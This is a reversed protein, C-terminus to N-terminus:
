PQHSPAPDLQLESSSLVRIGIAPYQAKLRRFDEDSQSAVVDELILASLGRNRAGRVTVDVCGAGDLGALYLERIERNRV